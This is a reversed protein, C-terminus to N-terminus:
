LLRCRRRCYIGRCTRVRSTRTRKCTKDMQKNKYKSTNNRRWPYWHYEVMDTCNYFCINSLSLTESNSIYAEIEREDVPTKHFFIYMIGYLLLLGLGAGLGAM